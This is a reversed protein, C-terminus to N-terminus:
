PEIVRECDYVGDEVRDVYAVDDDGAGCNIEDRFGDRARIEDDGPSSLQVGGRMGIGDQGGGGRLLDPGRGGRVIDEGRAGRVLDRGGEGSVRDNGGRGNLRDREPSGVLHDPGDTGREVVAPALAATALLAASAGAALACGRRRLNRARPRDAGGSAAM